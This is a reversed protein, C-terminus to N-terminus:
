AKLLWNNLSIQALMCIVYTKLLPESNVLVVSSWVACCGIQDDAVLIHEPNVTFVQTAQAVICSLALVCSNNGFCTRACTYAIYASSM